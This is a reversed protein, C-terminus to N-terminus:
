PRPRSRRQPDRRTPSAPARPRPAAGRPPDPRNGPADCRPRAPSMPTHTDRPAAPGRYTTMRARRETLENRGAAGARWRGRRAAVATALRRRWRDRCRVNRGAVAVARTGDGTAREEAVCPRPDPAALADSSNPPSESRPWLLSRSAHSPVVHADSAVSPGGHRSSASSTASGSRRRAHDQEASPGPLCRVVVGPFPVARCPGLAVDVARRCARVGGRCVVVDGLRTRSYPPMRSSPESPSVIRSVQAHSPVVQVLDVVRANGAADRVAHGPIRDSPRSSM